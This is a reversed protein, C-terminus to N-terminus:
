KGTVNTVIKLSQNASKLTFPDLLHSKQAIKKKYASLHNAKIIQIIEETFYQQKDLLNDKKLRLIYEVLTPIAYFKYFWKFIDYFVISFLNM